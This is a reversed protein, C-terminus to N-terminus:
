FFGGSIWQPCQQRTLSCNPGIAELDPVHFYHAWRQCGGIYAVSPVSKSHMLAKNDKKSDLLLWKLDTSLDKQGVVWTSRLHPDRLLICAIRFLSLLPHFGKKKLLVISFVGPCDEDFARQLDKDKCIERVETM